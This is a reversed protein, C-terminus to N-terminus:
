KILSSCSHQPEGEVMATLQSAMGQVIKTAAEKYQKRRALEEVLKCYSYQYETYHIRLHEISALHQQMM